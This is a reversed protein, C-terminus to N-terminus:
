EVLDGLNLVEIAPLSDISVSKTEGLHVEIRASHTGDCDSVTYDKSHFAKVGLVDAFAVSCALLAKCAPSPLGDRGFACIGFDAGDSEELVALADAGYQLCLAHVVDRKKFRSIDLSRGDILVFHKKLASYEYFRIM